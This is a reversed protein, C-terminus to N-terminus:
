RRVAFLGAVGAVIVAGVIGTLVPPSTLWEVWDYPPREDVTVQSEITGDDRHLVIRAPVARYALRRAEQYANDQTPALRSADSDGQRKVAWVDGSPVVHFVTPDPM